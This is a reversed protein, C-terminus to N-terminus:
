QNGNQAQKAAKKARLHDCIEAMFNKMDEALRKCEPCYVKKRMKGHV